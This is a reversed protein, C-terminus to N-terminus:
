RALKPSSSNKSDLHTRRRLYMLYADRFLSIVQLPLLGIGRLILCSPRSLYSRAFSDDMETWETKCWARNARFRAMEWFKGKEYILRDWVSRPSRHPHLLHWNDRHVRDLCLYSEWQRHTLYHETERERMKLLPQAIYGFDSRASLRLWLYQDAYWSYRSDFLVDIDALASRRIVTAVSFPCTTETLLQRLLRKGPVFEPLNALHRRLAKGQEDIAIIGTAVFGVSPYKELVGITAELYTPELIDHDELLVLYQGQALLMARNINEPVGLNEPNRVYRVREDSFRGVVDPTNDPSNDDVVIIEINTMTQALASDLTQSIFNARGYTPVCLSVLPCNQDM